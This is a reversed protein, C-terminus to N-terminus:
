TNKKQVAPKGLASDTQPYDERFHAGRSEKRGQAAQAMLGSSVLMSYLRFNDMRVADQTPAQEIERLLDQVLEQVRELSKESRCVLLNKQNVKQMHAIMANTDIRKHLIEELAASPKGADVALGKQGRAWEAASRGAIEGFVQCTVMMNGGLRDAGHPGGAVEGAAYLGPLSSASRENIRVGGNIAHAFVSIEVTQKLLDLGNERMHDRAVRWMHHLGCDDPISDVYADTMHTLDACIGGHACANGACIEKQITIELYKSDDSSSFPFHRRHEDMVHEPPMGAPFYKEVFSEGRGNQLRPHAAWIYGNFINTIPHSIGLGAQMFEMNILEAGAEYGLLYGDGSVDGPNLNKEFAQSAGGTALVVAGADIRVFGGAKDVGWAGRCVGDRMLLEVITIGSLERINPRLAIQQMMAHVIPDGHGRIVHTRPASAFCSQFIYYDDGEMDFAVGWKELEAVTRPANEALIAALRPDAMGQGADVIDQYHREVDGPKAPNGANYGAMEAVPYTTTGGLGLPKKTAILVDAGADAAAIAARGAAGGGGVILVDTALRNM